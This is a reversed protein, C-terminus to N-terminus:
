HLGFSFQVSWKMHRCQSSSKTMASSKASATPMRSRRCINWERSQPWTRWLQLTSRLWNTSREKRKQLVVVIIVTSSFWFQRCLVQETITALLYVRMVSIIVKLLNFSWRWDQQGPGADSYLKEAAWMTLKWYRSLLTVCSINWKNIWELLIWSTDVTNYSYRTQISSRKFGIIIM